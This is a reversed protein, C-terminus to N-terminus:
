AAKVDTVGRAELETAVEQCLGIYQLEFISDLVEDSM